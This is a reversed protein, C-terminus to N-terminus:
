VLRLRVRPKPVLAVLRAIFDMPEFLVHTTGDRYPTKLEYCGKGNRLLSLQNESVAPRAIYRCLRELKEGEHARAWRSATRSRIAWSNVWREAKWPMAPWIATRPTVNWSAGPAGAFRGVRHAITHTLHRLEARTPAKVGHFRPSLGNASDLYAADLFLVQFHANLNLASAFRQILTVAGTRATRCSFGAQKILHTAICRYVIGLVKSM